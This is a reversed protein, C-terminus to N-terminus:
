IEMMSVPFTAYFSFRNKKLTEALGRIFTVPHKDTQIETQTFRLIKSDASDIQKKTTFGRM